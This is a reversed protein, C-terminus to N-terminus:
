VGAASSREDVSACYLGPFYMVIGHSRADVAGYVCSNV